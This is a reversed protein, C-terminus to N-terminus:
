MCIHKPVAPAINLAQALNARTTVIQIKVGKYDPDKCLAHLVLRVPGTHLPAGQMMTMMMMMMMMMVM